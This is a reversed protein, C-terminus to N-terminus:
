INSCLDCVTPFLAGESDPFVRDHQAVSSSERDAATGSGVQHGGGERCESAPIRASSGRRGWSGPRPGTATDTSCYTDDIPDRSRCSRDGSGPCDRSKTQSAFLTGPAHTQTLVLIDPRLGGDHDPRPPEDRATPLPPIPFAAALVM